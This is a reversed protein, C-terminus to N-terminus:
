GDHLEQRSVRVAIRTGGGPRSDVSFSGLATARERMGQLGFHGPAPPAAPDFGRGDDSITLTVERSLYHLCVDIKAPAAHELANTIAEQTILLLERCVHQPLPVPLGEVTPRVAIGRAGGLKSALRTLAAGLDAAGRHEGRLDWLLRRTEEINATVVQEIETIEGTIAGDSPRALTGGFLKRLGRLQMLVAAMGQLLSDHLERAMRTREAFTAVYRGHVQALRMRHFALVLALVALGAGGYFFWTQHFHPALSFSLVDGTENWVGDANSGQVRFRYHGPRVNTYYAVRRTGAEVWHDEFGELLYRHQAKHPELLTIAAFHLELAGSGPPFANAAGRLAPRGDIFAEEILVPPALADLRVRAPDVSVVGRQTAFWLRGDRGKWAGPQRTRTAGVERGQDSVDFSLVELRSRKGRELEDISARSIRLLGTSAGVWLSGADDAIVQYSDAHELGEAAGFTRWVGKRARALGDRTGLWLAGDADRFLSRVKGIRPGSAPPRVLRSGELSLLRGGGSMWLTGQDDRALGRMENVRQGDAAAFRELENGRLRALGEGTGMWLVDGELLLSSIPSAMAVPVDLRGARWRALGRDTGVWLVGEPGPLVALVQNSPLGDATTLTQEQGDKWRTLGLSTGVWLAGGPDEAVSSIWQDRLSPPGAQGDLTRDTFQALGGGRTGVWLSGERDEFVATIDDDPLGDARTFTEPEHGPQYRVLGARTGVWVNGDRDELLRTTRRLAPVADGAVVTTASDIRVLAHDAAVWLHDQGQFLANVALPGSGPDAPVLPGGATSLLLGASTGVWLRGQRDHHLATVTADGWAQAPQVRERRGGRVRHIGDSAAMWITGDADEDVDAIRGGEPFREGGTFCPGFAGARLCLPAGRTPLIWLTGDRAAHLGMVDPAEDSPRGPPMTVLRGGGYRALGGQTGLWLYGDPTQVIARVWAGPLGDRSRWTDVTCGSLRKSADLAWASPATALLVAVLLCARRLM